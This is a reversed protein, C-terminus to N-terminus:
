SSGLLANTCPSELVMVQRGGLGWAGSLWRTCGWTEQRARAREWGEQRRRKIQGEGLFLCERDRTGKCRHRARVM